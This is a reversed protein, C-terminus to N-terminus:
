TYPMIGQLLAFIRLILTSSDGWHTTMLNDQITILQLWCENQGSLYPPKASVAAQRGHQKPLATEGFGGPRSPSGDRGKPLYCVFQPHFQPITEGTKEV